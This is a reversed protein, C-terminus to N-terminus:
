DDEADGEEQPKFEYDFEVLNFFYENMGTSSGRNIEALREARDYLEAPVEVEVTPELHGYRMRMIRDHATWCWDRIVEEVTADQREAELELIRIFQTHFEVSVDAHHIGKELLDEAGEAEDTM